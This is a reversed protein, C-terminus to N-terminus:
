HVSRARACVDLCRLMCRGLSKRERKRSKVLNQNARRACMEFANMTESNWKNEDNVATPTSSGCALPMIWNSNLVYLPIVIRFRIDLRWDRVLVALLSYLEDIQDTDLQPEMHVYTHIIILVTNKRRTIQKLEKDVHEKGQCLSWERRWESLAVNLHDNRFFLFCETLVPVSENYKDTTRFFRM